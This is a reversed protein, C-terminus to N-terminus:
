FAVEPQFQPNQRFMTAFYAVLMMSLWFDAASAEEERIRKAEAEEWERRLTLFRETETKAVKDCRPEEQSEARRFAPVGALERARRVLPALAPTRRTTPSNTTVSM